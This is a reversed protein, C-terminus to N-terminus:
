SIDGFVPARVGVKAVSGGPRHEVVGARVLPLDRDPDYPVAGGQAIHEFRAVLKVDGLVIELAGRLEDALPGLARFLDERSGPLRGGRQEALAGLRDLLAPVGGVLDIARELLKRDTPGTSEALREVAEVESYDGLHVHVAGAMEFAPVDVSGALLLTLRRDDAAGLYEEFVQVFDSLAEVHLHELHHILLARRPGTDAKELLGGLVHRFGRRDVAQSIPGDVPFGVFETVARVLWTRSEHVSRGVMPAMSLTRAEIQPKGLALDLAVDDLFARAESWRPTILVVPDMRRLHLRVKRAIRARAARELYYQNPDFAGNRKGRLIRLRRDLRHM